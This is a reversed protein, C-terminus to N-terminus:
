NGLLIMLFNVWYFGWVIVVFSFAIILPKKYEKKVDLFHAYTLCVMATAIIKFFILNELRKSILFRALPNIEWFGPHNVFLLTLILDLLSWFVILYIM